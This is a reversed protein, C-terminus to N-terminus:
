WGPWGGLQPTAETASVTLRGLQELDREAHSQRLYVQLDAIQQSHDADQALPWPGLARGVREIVETASREVVARVRMARRQAAGRKDEPDADIATAASRLAGDSSALAVDIAGLQAYAHPGLDRRRLTDLATRAIGVACGHWCAAVGIAGHWFGPRELYAMPAGVELAPVDRFGVPETSSERMGLGQWTGQEVTVSPQSLRAAFLRRGDEAVATLLAADLIGAGSCWAKTGSLTWGSPTRTATVIHSPPEAAWVGWTADSSIGAAAVDGETVGLEALIARADTHAEALRGVVADAACLAALQAWREYTRGCGPQPLDLQGDRVLAALAAEVPRERM